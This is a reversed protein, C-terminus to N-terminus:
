NNKYRTPHRSRLLPTAHQVIDDPRIHIRLVVVIVIQPRKKSRIVRHRLANIVPHNIGVQRNEDTVVVGSVLESPYGMADIAHQRRHNGAAILLLYAWIVGEFKVLQYEILVPHNVLRVLNNDRIVKKLPDHGPIKVFTVAEIERDWPYLPPNQPEQQSHIAGIDEIVLPPTYRDLKHIATDHYGDILPAAPERPASDVVCRGIVRPLVVLLVRGKHDGLIELEGEEELLGHIAPQQM